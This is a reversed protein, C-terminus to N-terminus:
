ANKQQVTLVKHDLRQVLPLIFHNSEIFFHSTM